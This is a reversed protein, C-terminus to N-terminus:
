YLTGSISFQIMDYRIISKVNAQQKVFCLGFHGSLHNVIDSIEQLRNDSGQTLPPGSIFAMGRMSQARQVVVRVLGPATCFSILVSYLFYKPILKGTTNCSSSWYCLASLSPTTTVLDSHVMILMQGLQLGAFRHQLIRISNSQIQSILFTNDCM